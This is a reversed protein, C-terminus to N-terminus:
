SKKKIYTNVLYKQDCLVEHLSEIVKFWLLNLEM